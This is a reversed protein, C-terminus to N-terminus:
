KVNALIQTILDKISIREKVGTIHPKVDGKKYSIGVIVAYSKRNKGTMILISNQQEGDNLPYPSLLTEVIETINEDTIKKEISPLFQKIVKELM